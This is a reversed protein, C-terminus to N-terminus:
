VHKAIMNAYDPGTNISGPLAQDQSALVQGLDSEGENNIKVYDRQNQRPVSAVAGVFDAKASLGFTTNRRVQARRNPQATAAM